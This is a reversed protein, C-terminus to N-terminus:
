QDIAELAQKLGWNEGELTHTAEFLVCILLFLYFGAAAFAVVLGSFPGVDMRHVLAAMSDVEGVSYIKIFWAFFTVLFMFIYNKMLRRRFAQFITIKFHPAFLDHAVMVGWEPEPSHPDRQLIPAIFNEELKRLRARWVDFFRFRRAEIGLLILLLFNALLIVIHDGEQRNSFSFSLTAGTTFVAWNTTQDLRLRWTTVRSMEGRYFHIIATIYEPRAIPKSEYDTAAGVAADPGSVGPNSSAPAGEPPPQPGSPNAM